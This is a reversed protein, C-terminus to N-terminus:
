TNSEADNIGVQKIKLKQVACSLGMAVWSLLVASGM